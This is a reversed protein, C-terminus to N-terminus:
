AKRRQGYWLAKAFKALASQRIWLWVIWPLDLKVVQQDPGTVLVERNAIKWHWNTTTNVAAMSTFGFLVKGSSIIWLRQESRNLIGAFAYAVEPTLFEYREDNGVVTSGEVVYNSLM